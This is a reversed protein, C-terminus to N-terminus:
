SFFATDVVKIEDYVYHNDNTQKDKSDNGDNIYCDQVIKSLKIFAPTRLCGESCTAKDRKHIIWDVFYLLVVM